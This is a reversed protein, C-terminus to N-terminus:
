GAYSHDEVERVARSPVVKGQEAGAGGRSHPESSTLMVGTQASHRKGRRWFENVGTNQPPGGWFDLGVRVGRVSVEKALM